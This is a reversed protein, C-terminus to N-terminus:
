ETSSPTIRYLHLRGTQVTVLCGMNGPDLIPNCALSSDLITLRDLQLLTKEFDMFAADSYDKFKKNFAKLGTNFDSIVLVHILSPHTELYHILGALRELQLPGFLVLYDPNQERLARLVCSFGGARKNRHSAYALGQIIDQPLSWSEPTWGWPDSTVLIRRRGSRIIRYPPHNTSSECFVPEVKMAALIRITEDLVTEPQAWELDSPFWVDAGKFSSYVDRITPGDLRAGRHMRRLLEMPRNVVFPIRGEGPAPQLRPTPEQVYRLVRGELDRVRRETIRPPTGAQYPIGDLGYKRLLAAQLELIHRGKTVKVRQDAHQDIRRFKETMALLRQVSRVRFLEAASWAVWGTPDVAAFYLIRDFGPEHHSCSEAIHFAIPIAVARSLPESWSYRDQLVVTIWDLTFLAWLPYFAPRETDPILLPEPSPSGESALFKAPIWLPADLEEFLDPIHFTRIPHDHRWELHSRHIFALVCAFNRRAQESSLRRSLSRFSPLPKSSAGSSMRPLAPFAALLVWLFVLFPLNQVQRRM